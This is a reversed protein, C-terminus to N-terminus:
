VVVRHGLVGIEKLAFGAGAVYGLNLKLRQQERQGSM